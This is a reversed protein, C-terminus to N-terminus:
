SDLSLSKRRADSVLFKAFLELSECTHEFQWSLDMRFNVGSIRFVEPEIIVGLLGKRPRHPFCVVISALADFRFM